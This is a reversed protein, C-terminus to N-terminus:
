QKKDLQFIIADYDNYQDQKISAIVKYKWQFPNFSPFYAEGVVEALIRTIYMRNVHDIAAAYVTEGGIIFVDDKEHSKLASSLTNHVISNLNSNYGAPLTRSLVVNRRNPLPEGGISKFTKHGMIVTSNITKHKFFMLDEQMHWPLANDNGIVGNSSVAAIIAKM